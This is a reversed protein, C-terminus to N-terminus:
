AEMWRWAETEYTRHARVYERGAAALNQRLIPEKVLSTVALRWAPAGAAVLGGRSEDFLHGYPATPSAVWPVGLASAELGKLDSKAENFDNSALPVVAVDLAAYARPYQELPLWGGTNSPHEDLGLAGKVGHATGIVHFSAGTSSIAAAVGGDTA